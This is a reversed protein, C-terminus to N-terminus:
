FAQGISFHVRQTAGIGFDLRVPGVPTKIRLGPGFGFHPSFNSHQSYGSIDYRNDANAGWADGSDVFLVGVVTGNKELPVRYELSALFLNNGWYRDDAYGRLNDAGGLFYQESFGIKGVATGLLVRGAIVNKNERINGMTRRGNLSVYKRFDLNYKTFPGNISSKDLFYQPGTASNGSVYGTNVRPHAYDFNSYGLEVSPSVFVGWAPDQENDRTNEAYRLNVSSVDGSQVIAPIAEIQAATASSLLTDLNNSRISESRLSTYFRSTDNTPRSLTLSGGRHREYYPDSSASSTLDSTFTTGFRYTYRDYLNVGLSTNYKDLWPESFGLDFSNRAVLGGVTWSASVGQGRGRFNSESLSLTGTLRETQSYGFSVGVQGTRQEQVPIIIKTKGEASGEETRVNSIDSFLGTAFIRTIDRQLAFQNFPKGVKTKMERTVVFPKTKHLNEVSISEVTTVVIPITLINTKPDVDVIDSIFARYGKSAYYDQIKQADTELNKRNLVYGSKTLLLPMLDKAPIPDNGTFVIESIVPNEFVDFVVRVRRDPTTETRANVTAYLGVDSIAQRADNLAADRYPQGVKIGANTAATRVVEPNTNKTGTVVVEAITQGEQAHAARPAITVAAAAILLLTSTRVIGPTPRFTLLSSAAAATTSRFTM